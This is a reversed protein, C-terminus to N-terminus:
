RLQDFPTSGPCNLVWYMVAGANWRACISAANGPTLSVAGDCSILAKLEAYAAGTGAVAELVRAPRRRCPSSWCATSGASTTCSRPSWCSAASGQGAHQDGAIRSRRRNSPVASIVSLQSTFRRSRSSASHTFNKWGNTGTVLWVLRKPPLPKRQRAHRLPGAAM